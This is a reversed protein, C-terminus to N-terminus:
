FKNSAVYTHYNFTPDLRFNHCYLQAVKVVRTLIREPNLTDQTVDSLKINNISKIVLKELRCRDRKQINERKILEFILM